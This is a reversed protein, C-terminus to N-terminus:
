KRKGKAPLAAPKEDAVAVPAPAIDIARGNAILAAAQKTDEIDTTDGAKYFQEGTERGRFDTLFKIQM